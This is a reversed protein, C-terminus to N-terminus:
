IKLESLEGEIRSAQHQLWKTEWFNTSEKELARHADRCIALLDPDRPTVSLAIDTLHLAKVPEGADLCARARKGIADSGGSLEM